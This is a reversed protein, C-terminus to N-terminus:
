LGTRGYDACLCVEVCLCSACCYFLLCGVSTYNFMAFSKIAVANNVFAVACQIATHIVAPSVYHQLSVAHTKKKFDLVAPQPMSSNGRYRNSFVTTERWISEQKARQDLGAGHHINSHSLPPRSVFLFLNLTLPPILCGGGGSSGNRLM